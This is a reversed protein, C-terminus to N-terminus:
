IISLDLSSSRNVNQEEVATEKVTKDRQENANMWSFGKYKGICLFTYHYLCKKIPRAPFIYFMMLVIIDKHVMISITIAQSINNNRGITLVVALRINTENLSTAVRLSFM